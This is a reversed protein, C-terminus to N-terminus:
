YRIQFREEAAVAEREELSLEDVRIFGNGKRILRELEDVPAEQGQIEMTVSGDDMNRVWGTLGLESANQQVFFRFGVGQVIGRVDIRLIARDRGIINLIECM